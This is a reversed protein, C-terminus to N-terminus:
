RAPCVMYRDNQANRVTKGADKPGCPAGHIRGPQPASGQVQGRLAKMEAEVTAFRRAMRDNESKLEKVAEILPAM